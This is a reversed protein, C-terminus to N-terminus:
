HGPDLHRITLPPEAENPSYTTGKHDRYISSVTVGTIPHCNPVRSRYRPPVPEPVPTVGHPDETEPGVGKNLRRHRLGSPTPTLRPRYLLAKLKDKLHEVASHRHSRHRGPRPLRFTYRHSRTHPAANPPISPDVSPRQSGADSIAQASARITSSRSSCGPKPGPCEQCM